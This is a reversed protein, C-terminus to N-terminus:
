DEKIISWIGWALGAWALLNGFLLVAVSVGILILADTKDMLKSLM